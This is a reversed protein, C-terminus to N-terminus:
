ALLDYLLVRAAPLPRNIGGFVDRELFHGTLKLGAALDGEAVEGGALFGPLKLLRNQWEGAMAASVARGSKPSVYALGEREGSIACSGLDLGFGLATLLDCEYRVLDPLMEEGEPLRIMLMLLATFLSPYPDREPLAGATVAALAQLMALPLREGMANAAGPHVLEGMFQGLQDANRGVWRLKLINGPQFVVSKARSGGGKVLGRTVGHDESFVTAIIDHDAYAHSLLCIAPSEWEM